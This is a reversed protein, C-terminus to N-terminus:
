AAPIDCWFETRANPASDVGIRGHHAEVVERAIALGLGVGDGRRNSPARYFKDFVQGVEDEDLGAGSNIVSFRVFGTERNFARILIETGNPAYKIANSVFNNLVHGIRTRDALVGPTGADVSVSLQQGKQAALEAHTRRADELIDSPAVPQLDLRTAGNEMRALDLLTNLTRLLRECDSRASAVMEEQDPNLAGMKKELLIHLVMRIGTLPTKIEHSVTSLLNSKMDDLFRFRTVDVLM